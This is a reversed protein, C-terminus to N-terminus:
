VSCENVVILVLTVVSLMATLWAVVRLFFASNPSICVRFATLAVVGLQWADVLVTTVLVTPSNTRVSALQSSLLQLSHPLLGSRVFGERGVQCGHWLEARGFAMLCRLLGPDMLLHTFRAEDAMAAGCDHHQFLQQAFAQQDRSYIYTSAVTVQFCM